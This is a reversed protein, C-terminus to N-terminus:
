SMMSCVIAFCLVWIYLAKCMPPNLVHKPPEKRRVYLLQAKYTTIAGKDRLTDLTSFVNATCLVQIYHLGEVYTTLAGTYTTISNVEYFLM